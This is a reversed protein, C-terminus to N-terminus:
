PTRTSSGTTGTGTTSSSNTTEAGTTPNRSDFTNTDEKCIVEIVQLSSNNNQENNVISEVESGDIVLNDSLKNIENDICITDDGCDNLTNPLVKEVGYLTLKEAMKKLTGRIAQTQTLNAIRLTNINTKLNIYLITYFSNQAYTNNLNKISYVSNSSSLYSGDIMAELISLEKTTQELKIGSFKLFFKGNDYVIDEDQLELLIPVCPVATELIYQGEKINAIKQWPKNKTDSILKNLTIGECVDSKNSTQCINSIAEQPIGIITLIKQLLEKAEKSSGGGCSAFTLLIAIGLSIFVKKLM